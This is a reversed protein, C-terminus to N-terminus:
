LFRVGVTSNYLTRAVRISLAVGRVHPIPPPGASSSLVPLYAARANSQYFYYNPDEASKSETAKAPSNKPGCQTASSATSLQLM